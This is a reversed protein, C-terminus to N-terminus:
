TPRAALRTLRANIARGIGTDAARQVYIQLAGAAKLTHLAAYLGRAFGHDDASLVQWRATSLTGIPQSVRAIVGDHPGLKMHTLHQVDVPFIREQTAPPRAHTTEIAKDVVSCGLTTEITERPIAGHRIIAPAHGLVTIVTSEIGLACTGGDLILDVKDGLDARVHGATTPPPMGFRNASPAAIGAAAGEKRALNRLLASAVPHDPARLAVTQGGGVVVSPVLPGRPAVLTLPGPWLEAMLVDAWAPMNPAWARAAEASAVHVILARTPPRGKIAFVRAVAGPHRVSAGMGYVTETPFVVVGGAALCDAAHNIKDSSM